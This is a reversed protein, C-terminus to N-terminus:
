QQIGKKIILSTTRPSMRYSMALGVESDRSVLYKFTVCFRETDATKCFKFHYPASLCAMEEFQFTIEM